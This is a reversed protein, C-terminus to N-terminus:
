RRRLAMMEIMPEEPIDDSDDVGRDIADDSDDADLERFKFFNVTNQSLM